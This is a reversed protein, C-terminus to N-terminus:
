KGLITKMSGRQRYARRSVRNQRHLLAVSFALKQKWGLPLSGVLRCRGLQLKQILQNTKEKIRIQKLWLNWWFFHHKEKSILDDYM